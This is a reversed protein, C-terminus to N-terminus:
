KLYYRLSFKLGLSQITAKTSGGMVSNIKDADSSLQFNDPSSYDSINSLSRIYSAAFALQLKQNIFHDIGANFAVNFILSKLELDGESNSNLNSPFGYSPLNEFLVNYASYYGKYTFTGRTNYNKEIPIAMLLGPQVFFGTKEAIPLRLNILAPISLTGIKQTEKIESGTVRREYSELESDSTIFKNQYSGLTQQSNYAILGIGTFVGINDSLFFGFDVFGLFSNKKETILKSVTSTGFNLISSQSPGLSIGVFKGPKDGVRSTSTGQSYIKNQFGFIILATLLINRIKIIILKM